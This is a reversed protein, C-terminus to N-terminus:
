KPLVNRLLLACAPTELRLAEAATVVRRHRYGQPSQSDPSEYIEANRDRLNILWYVPIGATGYTLAKRRDTKLTTDSVEIILAVDAPEPHREAYDERFGRVISLDPEPESNGLTIPAQNRVIWGSAVQQRLLEQSEGIVYEHEPSKPMKKVVWGELLEIRDDETFAGSEIMRHYQEVTFRAIEFPPPETTELLADAPM